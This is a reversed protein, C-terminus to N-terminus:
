LGLISKKKADFEAQSLVGSDRLRALKILQQEFDQSDSQPAPPTPIPPLGHKGNIRKLEARNALYMPFAIIWLGLCAFGWGAPGMDCVGKLQGKKVGIGKADAFVWITTGVVILPILEFM